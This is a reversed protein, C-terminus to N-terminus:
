RGTGTGHALGRMAHALFASPELRRVWLERNARQLEAFGASGLGRHFEALIGPADALREIPIRCVHRRWDVEGELPLVSDTDIVVPIRGASLAEFFRFSWNGAGRVCLAYGCGFVSDVYEERKRRRDANGDIGAMPPGLNGSRRVFRPEVAGGREFARLVRERLTFGHYNQWGKRLYGLSRLGCAVHGIFGVTPVDEWPLVEPHDPGREEFLDPVDGSAVREHARLRSRYGSTRWLVGWGLGSPAVHDSASFFATPKGFGAAAAASRRAHEPHDLADHPHLLVDARAADPEADMERAAMAATARFIRREAASRADLGGGLVAALPLLPVGDAAPLVHVSIKRPAREAM